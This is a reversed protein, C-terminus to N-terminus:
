KKYNEPHLKEDKSRKVMALILALAIVGLVVDGAIVGMQWNSLTYTIKAGPAVGQLSSNNAVM